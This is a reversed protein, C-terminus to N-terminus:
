RVTRTLVALPITTNGAAVVAGFANAAIRLRRQFQQDGGAGVDNAIEPIGHVLHAALAAMSLAYAAAVPPRSLSAVLNAHADGPAFRESAAPRAGLTLDLVHFVTFLGLVGGTSRMSRKAVQWPSRRRGRPRRSRRPLLSGNAKWARGTLVAAGGVHAVLSTALVGRAAWLVTGRPLVPAGATRLLEAYANFKEPGQYVKLNGLMHALVYGSFLAGSGAMALKVTATSLEPLEPLAPRSQEDPRAPSANVANM